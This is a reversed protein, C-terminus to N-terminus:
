VFDQVVMDHPELPGHAVPDGPDDDDSSAVRPRLALCAQLVAALRSPPEQPATVTQLDPM